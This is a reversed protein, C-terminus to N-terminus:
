CWHQRLLCGSATWCDAFCSFCTRAYLMVFHTRSEVQASFTSLGYAIALIELSTIQRDGREAFQRLVNPPPEADTLLFRGDVLVVAAVRPPTSRADAWM